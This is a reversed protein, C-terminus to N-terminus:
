VKPWRQLLAAGITEEYPEEFLTEYCIWTALWVATLEQAQTPDDASLFTHHMFRGVVRDCDPGYQRTNIIHQHWFEDVEPTPSAHGEPLIAKLYFFRRYRREAAAAREVTWGRYNVLQAAAPSLDMAAVRSWLGQDFAPVTTLPVSDIVRRRMMQNVLVGANRAVFTARLEAAPAAASAQESLGELAQYSDTSRVQEALGSDLQAQRLFAAVKPNIM